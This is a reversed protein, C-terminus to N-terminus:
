TRGQAAQGGASGEAAAEISCLRMPTNFFAGEQRLGGCGSGGAHRHAGLYCGRKRSTPRNHRQLASDDRVAHRVRLIQLCGLLHLAHHPRVAGHRGGNGDQAAHRM